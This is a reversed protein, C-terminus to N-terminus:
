QLYGRDGHPAPYVSEGNLSFGSLECLMEEMRRMRETKDSSSIGGAAKGVRELADM